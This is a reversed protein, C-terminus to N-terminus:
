LLLVTFLSRSSTWIRDIDSSSFIYQVTCCLNERDKMVVYDTEIKTLIHRGQYTTCAHKKNVKVYHTVDNYKIRKWRRLSM